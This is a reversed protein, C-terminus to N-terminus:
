NKDPLVLHKTPIWVKGMALWYYSIEMEVTETDMDDIQKDGYMKKLQAVAHYFESEVILVEGILRQIVPLEM